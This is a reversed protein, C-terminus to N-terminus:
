AGEDQESCILNLKRAVAKIDRPRSRKHLEAMYIKDAGDRYIRRDAGLYFYRAVWYGREMDPIMVTNVRRRHLWCWLSTTHPGSRRCVVRLVGQTKWGQRGNTNLRDVARKAARDVQQLAYRKKAAIWREHTTSM